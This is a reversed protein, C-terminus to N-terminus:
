DARGEEDAVTWPLSTQSMMIKMTLIIMIKMTLDDNYETLFDDNNENNDPPVQEGGDRAIYVLHHTPVDKSLQM